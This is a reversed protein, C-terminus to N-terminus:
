CKVLSDVEFRFLFYDQLKTIQLAFQLNHSRYPNGLARLISIRLFYIIM